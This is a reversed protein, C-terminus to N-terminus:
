ASMHAAVKTNDWLTLSFRKIVENESQIITGTRATLM